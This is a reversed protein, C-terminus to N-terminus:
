AQVEAKVTLAHLAEARPDRVVVREDLVGICHDGHLHLQLSRGARLCVIADAAEQMQEPTADRLAEVLELPILEIIEGTKGDWMTADPEMRYIGYEGM